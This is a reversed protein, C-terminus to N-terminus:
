EKIFKYSGVADEIFAKVVYIGKSLSSINVESNKSNINKNLVAQGLLNYIEIKTINKAASVNLHNKAPNPYSNFSFQELNQVSLPASAVISFDDMRSANNPNTNPVRSQKFIFLFLDAQPATFQLTFETWNLNGLSPDIYFGINPEFATGNVGVNQRISVFIGDSAAPLGQAGIFQNWFKLTYTTGAVATFPQRLNRFDNGFLLNQDGTHAVGANQITTQTAQGTSWPTTFNGPAMGEFGGEQLLNQGFGLSMSLLTILFTIKKM